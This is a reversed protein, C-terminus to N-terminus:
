RTLAEYEDYTLWCDTKARVRAWGTSLKVRKQEILPSSFRHRSSHSRSDFKRYESDVLIFRIHICLTKGKLGPDALDDRSLLAMGPQRLHARCEAVSRDGVHLLAIVSM